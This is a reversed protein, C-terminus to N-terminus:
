FSVSIGMTYTTSLPFNGVGASINEPDLDKIKSFTMLNHGRTFVKVKNMGVKETIRSPLTYGFEVNRLKFFASNVIWYTSSVFNNDVSKVSLRPHPNGNPLGDVVVNTYKRNGYIQYYDTNLLRNYKGYGMGLVNLNFGKFEFDLSIGYQLRPASNGIVRRDREDVVGDQNLDAYKIDGPRVEGYVQVPSQDIDAQDAYVGIAQLGMIDDILNGELTLGEFGQGPYPPEAYRTRKATGYTANASAFVQLDGIAQSYSIEGEVGQVGVKHYNWFPLAENLGIVGPIMGDRTTILDDAVNNFYGLNLRTSQNFLLADFGVNLEYTKQFDLDPNGTRELALRNSPGDLNITGVVKWVDEHYRTYYAGGSYSTSGLIGYSARLKLYDLFSSNQMFNEESVIWGLGFAPFYGYRNDPAFTGVGVRNINVELIYKDLIMDSVHLGLNQRRPSEDVGRIEKKSQYFNLLGALSHNGLQRNYNATVGFAINRNVDSGSRSKKTEETDSGWQLFTITDNGTIDSVGAVPEYVSFTAAQEATVVNYVDASLYPKVSLGPVWRDLNFNLQFDSQVYTYKRESYGRRTLLGYPNNQKEATGGLVYEEDPKGVMHGPILIPYDNSHHGGLPAFLNQTSINPWEKTQLAGNFGANFTIFDALDMDVSTRVTFIDDSNPYKTFKELGGNGQYGIHAFYRSTNNGGSLQANARTMGISNNLFMDYYDVDPYLIPDTHNQYANLATEDYRPAFGDNEMAQNYHTAYDYANLYDPLRSPKQIGHEVNVRVSNEFAKGKKTTVLLIGNAQRGGYLSKLTADKLLEVSEIAEPELYDLSREVGDVMVIYGGWDARVSLSHSSFGPVNTNQMQFLGNLRGGLASELSMGPTQELKEGKVISYAGTTRRETTEGFPTHLRHEEGSFAAAQDLEVKGSRLSEESMNIQRSQYGKAKFVLVDDSVTNFQIKGTRDANYIARKKSAMVWADQIPNGTADVVQIAVPVDFVKAKKAGKQALAETGTTLFLISLLVITSKLINM